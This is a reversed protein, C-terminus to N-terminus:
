FSGIAQAAEKKTMKSWVGDDEFDNSKLNTIGKKADGIIKKCYEVANSVNDFHRASPMPIRITLDAEMETSLFQEDLGLTQPSRSAGFFPHQRFGEGFFDGAADRTAFILRRFFSPHATAGVRREDFQEDYDKVSLCVSTNYSESGKKASHASAYIASCKILADEGLLESIKRIVAAQVYFNYASCSGNANAQYIIHISPAQGKSDNDFWVREANSMISPVDFAYGGEEVMVSKPNNATFESDFGSMASKMEEPQYGKWLLQKASKLNKAMSDSGHFDKDHKANSNDGGKCDDMMEMFEGFNCTLVRTKKAVGASSSGKVNITQLKKM